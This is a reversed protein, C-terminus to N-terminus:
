GMAAAVAMGDDYMGGDSAFSSEDYKEVPTGATLDEEPFAIYDTLALGEAIEWCDTMEDYIGLTVSRKELRDRSDAAWVYASGDEDDFVIYWSPLMPGTPQEAGDGKDPEIYVHQGMLLGETGTLEIYFPYQSSSTMEDEEGGYYYMNNNNGSNPNEWDIYSLTGAWTVTEDLRSRILMEMGENLAFVNMENISGEVRLRTVDTITIFNIGSNDEEGGGGYYYNYSNNYSAGTEDVTMVRGSIPAVVEANLLAAEMAAIDREKLAINYEAERIDANRTDIQLTYTLQQSAKAKAKQAELEKIESQASAIKLEESEKELYMKDLSLQMAETDYAFLLDGARVMDGEHVYTELVTKDSDRKVDVSEGAVVKGAYRDALGVAGAGAVMSVSQVSVSPGTSSGGDCGALLSLAMAGTLIAAFVRKM